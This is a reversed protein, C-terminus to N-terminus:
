GLGLQLDLKKRSCIKKFKPSSSVPIARSMDRSRDVNTLSFNIVHDEQYPIYDPAEEDYWRSIEDCFSIQIGENLNSQHDNFWALNSGYYNFNSNNTYNIGVKREQLQLQRKKSKMRERKHANQHGGLAQSNAFVKHCSACEFVKDAKDTVTSSASSNTSEEGGGELFQEDRRRRQDSSDHCPNLEIGFLRVKKETSSNETNSSSNNREMEM